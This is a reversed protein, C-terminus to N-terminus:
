EMIKGRATNALWFILMTVCASLFETQVIFGERRAGQQFIPNKVLSAFVFSILAKSLNKESSM